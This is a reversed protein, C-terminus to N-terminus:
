LQEVQRALAKKEAKKEQELRRIRLHLVNTEKMHDYEEDKIPKFFDTVSKQTFVKEGMSPNAETEDTDSKDSDMIRNLYEETKDLVPTNQICTTKATTDQAIDVYKLQSSSLTKLQYKIDNIVNWINAIEKEPPIVQNEESDNTDTIELITNELFSTIIKESNTIQDQPGLLNLTKSSSFWNITVNAKKDDFTHKLAPPQDAKQRGGVKSQKWTGTLKLVLALLFDQLEKLNGIWKLQEKDGKDKRKTLYKILLDAYLIDGQTSQEATDYEQVDVEHYPGLGVGLNLSPTRDIQPPRGPPFKWLLLVCPHAM